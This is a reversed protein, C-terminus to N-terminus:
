PSLKMANLKNKKKRLIRKPEISCNSKLTLKQGFSIDCFCMEHCRRLKSNSVIETEAYYFSTQLDQMM